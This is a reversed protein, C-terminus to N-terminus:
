ASLNELERRLKTLESATKEAFKHRKAGGTYPLRCEPCEKVKPRCRNCILHMESCMFIPIDATEFCVPCELDAEKEKIAESLFTSVRNNNEKPKEEKETKTIDFTVLNEAKKNNEMMDSGLTVIREQITDGTRKMREMELEIHKEYKMRKKEIKEIKDATAMSKQNVRNKEAEIEEIKSLLKTVESELTIVQQLGIQKEEKISEIQINIKESQSSKMKLLENVKEENEVLLKEKAKIENEILEHERQLKEFGERKNEWEAQAKSAIIGSLRDLYEAKELTMGGTSTENEETIDFDFERGVTFITKHEESKREIYEKWDPDIERVAESKSEEKIPTEIRTEQPSDLDSDISEHKQLALTRPLPQAPRSRKRRRKQKSPSAAVGGIYNVLENIDRGDNQIDIPFYFYHKHLKPHIIDKILIDQQVKEQDYMLYTIKQDKVQAYHQYSKILDGITTGSNLGCLQLTPQALFYNYHTFSRVPGVYIVSWISQTGDPDFIENEFKRTVKMMSKFVAERRDVELKTDLSDNPSHLSLYVMISTHYRLILDRLDHLCEYIHEYEPMKRFLPLLDPLQEPMAAPDGGVIKRLTPLMITRFLELDQLCANADGSSSHSHFKNAQSILPFGYSGGKLDNIGIKIGPYIRKIGMFLQLFVNENRTSSRKPFICMSDGCTVGVGIVTAEDEIIHGDYVLSYFNWFAVYLKGSKALLQIQEADNRSIFDKYTINSSKVFQEMFEAMDLGVNMKINSSVGNWVQQKVAKFTDGPKANVIFDSGDVARINIEIPDRKLLEGVIKKYMKV